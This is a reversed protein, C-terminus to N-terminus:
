EIRLGMEPDLEVQKKPIQPIIAIQPSNPGFLWSWPSPFLFFLEFDETGYKVYLSAM